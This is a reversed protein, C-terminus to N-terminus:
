DPVIEPAEDATPVEFVQDVFEFVWEPVPFSYTDRKHANRQRLRELRIPRGVSLYYLRLPVNISSAWDRIGYRTERRFAAVDLVVEKGQDLEQLSEKMIQSFVPAVRMILKGIFQDDRRPPFNPDGLREDISFRTAGREQELKKALTTKGSATPGCILHLM